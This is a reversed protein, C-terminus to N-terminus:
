KKIVVPVKNSQMIGDFIEYGNDEIEKKQYDLLNNSIYAKNFCIGISFDFDGNTPIKLAEWGLDPTRGKEKFIPLFLKKKFIKYEGPHLVFSNSHSNGVKYNSIGKGINGFDEYNDQIMSENMEVYKKLYVLNEVDKSNITRGSFWVIGDGNDNKNDFVLGISNLSGADKAKSEEIFTGSTGFYMFETPDFNFYYKRNTNNVIKFTLLNFAKKREENSYNKVEDYLTDNDIISLSSIGTYNIENNILELNVSGTTNNEDVKKNTCSILLAFVILPIINKKM